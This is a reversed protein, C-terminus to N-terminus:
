VDDIKQVGASHMSPTIAGGGGGGIFTRASLGQSRM